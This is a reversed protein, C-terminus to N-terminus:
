AGGAGRAARRAQGADPEIQQQDNAAQVVDHAVVLLSGAAVTAQASDAQEFGGGAVPMIRSDPDTLNVQDSPGPGPTPPAPPRGGPKRGTKKAQDARAKMKAEHEAQERAFRAKARAEIM